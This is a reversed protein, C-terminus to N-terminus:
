IEQTGLLVRVANIEDPHINSHNLAISTFIDSLQKNSLDGSKFNRNFDIKLRDVPFITKSLLGLNSMLLGGNSDNDFNLQIFKNYQEDTATIWEDENTLFNSLFILISQQSYHGDVPLVGVLDNMADIINHAEKHCSECLVAYNYDPYDWPSLGKKYIKHHVHLQESESCCSECSFGRESLVELRKKQWLPSKLKEYYTTM